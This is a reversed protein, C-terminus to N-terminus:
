TASSWASAVGRLSTAGPDLLTELAPRIGVRMMHLM